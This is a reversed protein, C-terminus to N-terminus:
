SDKFMGSLGFLNYIKKKFYNNKEVKIYFEDFQLVNDDDRNFELGLFIFDRFRRMIVEFLM